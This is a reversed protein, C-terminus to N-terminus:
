QVSQEQPLERMRMAQFRLVHVITALGLAISGLYTAAGFRRLGEVWTAWATVTQITGQNSNLVADHLVVGLTIHTIIAFLLMMMGMMMLVIMGWASVPMKLTLVRRRATAQVQGGGTRLVGLIRAIAFVIGSFVSMFGLFMVAPIYQGLAAAGAADSITTGTDVLNARIAGLIFAVLFAMVGMLLMPVWLASGMKQAFNMDLARGSDVVEFEGHRITKVAAM